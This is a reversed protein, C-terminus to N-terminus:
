NKIGLEKEITLVNRGGVYEYRVADMMKKVMFIGLGGIEREEAPLGTDPDPRALPDYPIGGDTFRIIIRGADTGVSVAIEGDADPYAYNAVNVFIEEAAINIAAQNAASVPLAGGAEEIFALLEDLKEISAPLTIEQM